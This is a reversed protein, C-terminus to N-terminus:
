DSKIVIYLASIIILIVAFIMEIGVYENLLLYGFAISFAPEGTCIVGTYKAGIKSISIQYFNTALVTLIFSYACILVWEKPSFKYVISDNIFLSFIYAEIGAFLNVYFLNKINEYHNLKRDLVVSYMAFTIASLAALIIGKLNGMDKFDALMFLGIIGVLFAIVEDKKPRSKTIICLSLFIMMPYLFHVSTATGGSIYKYSYFLCISTGGLGMGALIYYFIEKFKIKMSAKNKFKAILYILLLNSTMRYFTASIGNLGFTFITMTLFPLLGFIMAALVAYVIGSKKM